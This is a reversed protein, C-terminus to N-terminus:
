AVSLQTEQKRILELSSVNIVGYLTNIFVYAKSLNCSSHVRQPVIQLYVLERESNIILNTLLAPGSAVVLTWM